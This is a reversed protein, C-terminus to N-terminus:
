VGLLDDRHETLARMGAIAQDVEVTHLAPASWAATGVSL